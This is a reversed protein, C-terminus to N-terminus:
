NTGGEVSSSTEPVVLPAPQAKKDSDEEVLQAQKKAFVAETAALADDYKAQKVQAATKKTSLLQYAKEIGASVLESDIEHGFGKLQATVQTIAKQRKEDNPLEYNTSLASVANVALQDLLLLAERQRSTKQLEVKHKLAPNIRTFWGVFAVVIIGLIGTDNLLNFIKVLTTM